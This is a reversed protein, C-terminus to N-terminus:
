AQSWAAYDDTLRHPQKIEHLVAGAFKRQNM